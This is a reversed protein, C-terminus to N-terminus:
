DERHYASNLAHELEHDELIPKSRIAGLKLIGAADEWSVECGKLFRAAVYVKRSRDGEEVGALWEGLIHQPNVVEGNLLQDVLKDEPLDFADPSIRGSSTSILRAMEQRKANMLGPIRLVRRPDHVGGDAGIKAALKKMMARADSMPLKRDLLWIAQWRFGGNATSTQVLTTPDPWAPGDFTKDAAFPWPANPDDQDVWIRDYAKIESLRVPLVGAYINFGAREAREFEQALDEAMSTDPGRTVRRAPGNKKIYAIEITDEADYLRDLYRATERQDM